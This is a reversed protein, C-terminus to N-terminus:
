KVMVKLADAVTKFEKIESGKISKNFEEDMMAIFSILAISDWEELEDLVKDSTLTGDELDLIEELMSLRVQETM